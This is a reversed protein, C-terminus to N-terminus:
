HHESQIQTHVAPINSDVEEEQIEDWERLNGISINYQGKLYM